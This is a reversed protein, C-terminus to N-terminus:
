YLFDKRARYHTSLTGGHQRFHRYALLLLEIGTKPGWWEFIKSGVSPDAFKGILLYVGKLYINLLNETSLQILDEEPPLNSKDESIFSIRKFINLVEHRLDDAPTSGNGIAKDIEKISKGRKTFNDLHEYSEYNGLAVGRTHRCLIELFKDAIKPLEDYGGVYIGSMNRELFPIQDKIQKATVPM